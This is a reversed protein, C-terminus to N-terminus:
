PCLCRLQMVSHYPMRTRVSQSLRMMSMQSLCFRQLSVSKQHMLASHIDPETLANTTSCLISNVWSVLGFIFFLTGLMLMPLLNSSPKQQVNGKFM